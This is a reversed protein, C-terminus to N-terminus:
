QKKNSKEILLDHSGMPSTRESHMEGTSGFEHHQVMLLDPDVAGPSLPSQRGTLEVDAFADTFSEIKKYAKKAARYQHLQHVQSPAETVDEIIDTVNITDKVGSWLRTRGEEKVFDGYGFAKVHLFAAVVMEACVLFSQVADSLTESTVGFSEPLTLLGRSNLVGLVVSQWYMFFIVFKIAIFKYLPRYPALEDHCVTYFVVLAYLAISCSLFLCLVIQVVAYQLTLLQCNLLFAHGRPSYRFYGFPFPYSFDPKNALRSHQVEYTPGLYHLM